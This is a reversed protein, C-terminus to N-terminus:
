SKPSLYAPEMSLIYERVPAPDIGALDFVMGVDRTMMRFWIRAERVLKNHTGMDDTSGTYGLADLVMRTAVERWLAEEPCSPDEVLTFARRIPEPVGDTIPIRSRTM